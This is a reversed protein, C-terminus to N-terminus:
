SASARSPKCGSSISLALEKAIVPNKDLFEDLPFGRWMSIWSIARCTMPLVM